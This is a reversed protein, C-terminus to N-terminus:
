QSVGQIYSDLDAQRYFIRGGVRIFKLHPNHHAPMRWKRLTLESGPTGRSKLYEAADRTTFREPHPM